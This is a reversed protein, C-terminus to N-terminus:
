FSAGNFMASITESNFDSLVLISRAMVARSPSEGFPLALGLCALAGTAWFRPPRVAAPLFRRDSSIFFRQLSRRFFAEAFPQTRGLKSFLTQLQVIRKNAECFRRDRVLLCNPSFNVPYKESFYDRISM